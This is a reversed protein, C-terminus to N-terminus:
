PFRNRKNAQQVHLVIAEGGPAGWYFGKRSPQKRRKAASVPPLDLAINRAANVDADDAHGCAGCAFSGGTKAVNAERLVRGLTLSERMNGIRDMERLAAKTDGWFEPHQAITRHITNKLGNFSLAIEFLRGGLIEDSVAMNRIETNWREAVEAPVLRALKADFIAKSLHEAAARAVTNNPYSLWRLRMKAVFEINAILTNGRDSIGPKANDGAMIKGELFDGLTTTKGGTWSKFMLDMDGGYTKFKGIAVKMNEMEEADSFQAYNNGIAFIPRFDAHGVVKQRKLWGLLEYGTQHEDSRAVPVITNDDLSVLVYGVGDWEGRKGGSNALMVRAQWSAVNALNGPALYNKAIKPPIAFGGTKAVNAERLVRGLTLSESSENADTGREVGVIRIQGPDLVAYVDHGSESFMVGDFGAQRLAKVFVRGDDGDFMEWTDYSYCHNLWSESIGAQVLRDFDAQQPEVMDLLHRINLYACLIKPGFEGAFERDKAFFVAHRDVRESSLCTTVVGGKLEFSNFNHSTGHWVPGIGFGGIAEGLTLSERHVGSLVQGLSIPFITMCLIRFRTPNSLRLM